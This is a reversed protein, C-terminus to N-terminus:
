QGLISVKAFHLQYLFVEGFESGNLQFLQLGEVREVVFPIFLYIDDGSLVDVVEVKVVHEM